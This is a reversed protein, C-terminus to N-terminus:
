KTPKAVVVVRREQKSFFFFLLLLVLGVFESFCRTSDSGGVDFVCLIRGARM